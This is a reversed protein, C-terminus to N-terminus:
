CSRGRPKESLLYSFSTIYSPYRLRVKAALSLNNYVRSLEVGPVKEMLMWPAGVLNGECSARVDSALVKPIPVQPARQALLCLITIEGRMKQEIWEQSAISHNSFPLPIRAILPETSDFTIELVQKIETTYLALLFISVRHFGGVAILAFSAIHAANRLREAHQLLIPISFNM